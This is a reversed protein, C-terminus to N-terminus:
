YLTVMTGQHLRVRYPERRTLCWRTSSAPSSLCGLYRRVLWSRRPSSEAQHAPAFRGFVERWISAHHRIRPHIPDLGYFESQAPFVPIKESEALRHLRENLQEARSLLERWRLGCSPFLLRRFLEMKWESARRLSEMPLAGVLMRSDIEQLREVCNRVWKVIVEVPVEYALDNGIDTLVAVTPLEKQSRLADWIKSQSIGSFFKGFCGAEQGYSRGHGMAVDFALPGRLSQCAAEVAWPFSRKLNSAGLLVVRQRPQATEIQSWIDQKLINYL